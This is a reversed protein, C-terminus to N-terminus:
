VPLDAASVGPPSPQRARPPHEGQRRPARRRLSRPRALLRATAVPRAEQRRVHVDTHLFRAGAPPKLSTARPVRRTHLARNPSLSSSSSRELSQGRAHPTSELTSLVQFTTKVLRSKFRPPARQFSFTPRCPSVARLKRDGLGQGLSTGRVSWDRTM